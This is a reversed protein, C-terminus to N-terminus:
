DINNSADEGHQSEDESESTLGSSSDSSSSINDGATADFEYEQTEAHLACTSVASPPPIWPHHYGVEETENNRNIDMEASDESQSPPTGLELNNGDASGSELPDTPDLM